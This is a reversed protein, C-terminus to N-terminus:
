RNLEKLGEKIKETGAKTNAVGYRMAQGMMHHKRAYAGVVGHGCATVVGSAVQFSGLAIKAIPGM